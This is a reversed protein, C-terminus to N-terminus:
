VKEVSTDLPDAVLPAVPVIAVVSEDEDAIADIAKLEDADMDQDLLEKDDAKAEHDYFPGLASVWLATAQRNSADDEGDVKAPLDAKTILKVPLKITIQRDLIADRRRVGEPSLVDARGIRRSFKVEVKKLVDTTADYPKEYAKVLLAMKTESDVGLTKAAINKMADIAMRFKSIKLTAQKLTSM